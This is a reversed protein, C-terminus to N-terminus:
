KLFHTKKGLYIQAEATGNEYNMVSCTYTGIDGPTFSSIVLESFRERHRGTLTSNMSLVHGGKSWEVSPIPSGKAACQVKVKDNIARVKVMEPPAITISPLVSLLFKKSINDTFRELNIM